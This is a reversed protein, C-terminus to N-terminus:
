RFNSVLGGLSWRRPSVAIRGIDLVRLSPTCQGCRAWRSRGWRAGMWRARGGTRTGGGGAAGYCVPCRCLLLFSGGAVTAHRRRPRRAGLRRFPSDCALLPRVGLSAVNCPIGGHM